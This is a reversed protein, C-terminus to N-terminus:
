EDEPDRPLLGRLFTLEAQAAKVFAKADRNTWARMCRGWPSGMCDVKGTHDKVPCGHCYNNNDDDNSPDVEELFLSCLACSDGFIRAERRGVRLNDEWHSISNQLAELTKDDM